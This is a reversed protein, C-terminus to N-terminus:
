KSIYIFYMNEKMIDGAIAICNLNSMKTQSTELGILLKNLNMEFIRSSQKTKKYDGNNNTCDETRGTPPAM